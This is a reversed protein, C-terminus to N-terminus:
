LQVYIWFVITYSSTGYWAINGMDVGIKKSQVQFNAHITISTATLKFFHSGIVNQFWVKSLKFNIKQCLVGSSQYTSLPAVARIVHFLEFNFFLDFHCTRVIFYEGNLTDTVNFLHYVNISTHPLLWHVRSRGQVAM